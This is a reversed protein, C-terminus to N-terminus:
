WCDPLADRGTRCNFPNSFTDSAAPSFFVNCKENPLSSNVYQLGDSFVHTTSGATNSTHAPSSEVAVKCPLKSTVCYFGLSANPFYLLPCSYGCPIEPWPPVPAQPLPQRGASTPSRLPATKAASRQATGCSRRSRYARRGM